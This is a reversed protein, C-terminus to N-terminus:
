QRRLMGAINEPLQINNKQEFDAVSEYIKHFEAIINIRLNRAFTLDLKANEWERVHLWMVGRAAYVETFKPKLELVRDYDQIACEFKDTHFYALARTAYVEPFEPNLEIAKSFDEIAKDYERKKYSAIGRECYLKADNPVEVTTIFEHRFAEEAEAVAEDETQNEYYDIVRQVRKEDWGPPFKNQKM